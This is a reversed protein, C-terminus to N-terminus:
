LIKKSDLVIGVLPNFVIKGPKRMQILRTYACFLIHLYAGYGAMFHWIAHFQTVPGFPGFMGSSRISRLNDCFFNDVLWLAFGGYYFFISGFFLKRDCPLLKLIQIDFYLMLTVLAGYATQFLIPTKLYLYIFTCVIGYVVLVALVKARFMAEQEIRPYLIILMLYVLVLSGFLMPLEDFLQMEYLLTMHFWWSGVGVLALSLFCLSITHGFSNKRSYFYGVLSPILMALNSITNWFEAIYSSVVYNEECWDITSTTSGWFGEIPAM